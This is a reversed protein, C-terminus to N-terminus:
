MGSNPTGTTGGSDGPHTHTNFSARMGAMTKAGAQDRVDIAATITKGSDVDGDVVLDGTMHCLPAEIEVRTASRVLIHDRKLHVVQGQDDYIAVEGSALGTLRYRRDDVAIILGHSRNGGVSVMCAEAGALPHSTFGYEQLREVNDRTEGELAAVQLLQLRASDDVLRVVARGVMLRMANVIARV